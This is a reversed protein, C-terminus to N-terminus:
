KGGYFIYTNIYRIPVPKIKIINYGTSCIQKLNFCFGDLSKDSYINEIKNFNKDVIYNAPKFNSLNTSKLAVLRDNKVFNFGSYNKIVILFLFLMLLNKNFLYKRLKFKTQIVAISFLLMSISLIGGYGYRIAPAQFWIILVFDM